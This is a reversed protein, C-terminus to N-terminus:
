ESTKAANRSGAPASPSRNPRRRKRSAPRTMKAAPDATAIVTDPALSSIARRVTIPSPAARTMGAVSDVMVPVNGGALRVLATLMQAATAPPAAMKPTSPAPASSSNKEQRETKPRLMARAAMAMM